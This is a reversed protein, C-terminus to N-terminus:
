EGFALLPLVMATEDCNDVLPCLRCDRWVKEPFLTRETMQFGFREFFPVKRTLTFLTPIHRHRAEIILAQVLRSGIGVGQYQDGVVLSRVEILGSNYPLLSVCGLIEGGAEAVLWDGFTDYVSQLSRPLVNGLFAHANVLAYIASVDDAVALRINITQLEVKPRKAQPQM